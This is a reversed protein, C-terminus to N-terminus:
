RTRSPLSFSIQRGFGEVEIGGTSSLEVIAFANNGTGPGVVLASLTIYHIGHHYAYRGTHCHGQFVAIVNGGAELVSRVKEHNKVVHPDLAGEYLRFDLNEHFFVVTPKLHSASLDAQLWEIQSESVVCRDWQFNGAAFDSQDENYNGDLVVFHYDGRDFSFFSGPQDIPIKKLYEDKTLTALDHNGLVYYLPKNFLSLAESTKELYSLETNKDPDGDISDGMNVTFDLDSDNFVKVAESIKELSDRCHRDAYVKEAYHADTFIGFKM